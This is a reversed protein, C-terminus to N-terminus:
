IFMSVDAEAAFDLFATAGLCDAGEVIDDQKVNMVGM